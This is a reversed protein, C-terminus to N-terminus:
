KIATHIAAAGFLMRNFNVECFGAQRIIEALKEPRYFHRMSHSLYTYAPDSGSILRGIPRVTAKIYLHFMWRIPAFKPQSTDLNVFQGDPKLVRYFEELCKLLNDKTLNINRTAFSIIIVDFFNDQFPLCGVDALTFRIRKANSKEMAKSMMPLSFDVAVINTGDEALHSLCTAMDGTGSCADLWLTGGGAAAVRAARRRWFIDQGFTLLHNLLKYTRPVETFMKQIFRSM